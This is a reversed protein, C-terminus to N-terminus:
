GSATPETSATTPLGQSGGDLGYCFMAASRGLAALDYGGELAAVVRGASWRAAWEGIRLGLWHYDDDRLCLGGLPDDQHADFGASVLILQPRFAELAPLWTDLIAQRFADSGTGAALPVNVRQGPVSPTNTYPYLPHQYSSCLLVRPDDRFIDETGNAHHVDFDLIAVRSLGRTELASLAAVAVSNFFCFGMAQDREAHHGPPRVCCFAPNDSQALVETTADLLAGTALRAAQLTGPGFLTDGDIAVLEAGPRLDFLQQVHRESHARILADFPAPTPTKHERQPLATAVADYVSQLRAPCEPHGRGMDHTVCQEDFYFLTM